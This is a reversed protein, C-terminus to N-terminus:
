TYYNITPRRVTPDIRMARYPTAISQSMMQGRVLEIYDNSAYNVGHNQEIHAYLTSYDGIQYSMLDAIEFQPVIVGGEEVLDLVPIFVAFMLGYGFNLSSIRVNTQLRLGAFSRVHDDICVLGPSVQVDGDILAPEGGDLVMNSRLQALRVRKGMFSDIFAGNANSPDQYLKVQWGDWEGAFFMQGNQVTFPVDHGETPLMTVVRSNLRTPVLIPTYPEGASIVFETSNGKDTRSYPYDNLEVTSRVDM